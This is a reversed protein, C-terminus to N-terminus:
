AGIHSLAIFLAAMNIEPDAATSHQYLHQAIALIAEDWNEQKKFHSVEGINDYLFRYLEVWEDGSVSSCAIQRAKNWKRANLESLLNLKWDAHESKADSFPQLIGGIVNNQLRDITARIDPYTSGVYEDLLEISCQVKEKILIIAAAEVVDNFDPHAFEYITFRSRIPPTIRSLYNMTMIFRVSNSYTEALSRLISQAAPTLHDAEEIHVVKYEGVPYALVFDTITERMTKVSNENSGDITLLDIPDIGIANILIRALTTKGTGPAGHLLLNPFQKEAVYKEFQVKHAPNNFIYGDLSSPRYKFSWVPTIAM